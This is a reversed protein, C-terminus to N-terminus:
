PCRAEGIIVLGTPLLRLEAPRCGPRGLQLRLEAILAGGPDEPLGRLPTFALQHPQALDPADLTVGRHEASGVCLLDRVTDCQDKASSESVRLLWAAGDRSFTVWIKKQRTAASKRALQLGRDIDDLAGQLQQRAIWRGLAPLAQTLLVLALALVVMLEILTVGWQARRMM